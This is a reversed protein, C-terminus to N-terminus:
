SSLSVNTEFDIESKAKAESGRWNKRYNLLPWLLLYSGTRSAPSAEGFRIQPPLTSIIFEILGSLHAAILHGDKMTRRKAGTAEAKASDLASEFEVLAKVTQEIASTLSVKKTQRPNAYNFTLRTCLPASLRRKQPQFKAM